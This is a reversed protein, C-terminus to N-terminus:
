VFTEYIHGGACPMDRWNRIGWIGKGAECRRGRLGEPMVVAEGGIKASSGLVLTILIDQFGRRRDFGALACRGGSRMDADKSSSEEYM